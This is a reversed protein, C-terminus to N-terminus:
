LDTRSSCRVHKTWEGKSKFMITNDDVINYKPDDIISTNPRYTGEKFCGGPGCFSIYYLGSGAPGIAWGWPDKCKDDKWFGALPHSESKVANQEVYWNPEHTLRTFGIFAIVILALVLFTYLLIKLLRKM